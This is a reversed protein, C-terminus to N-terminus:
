RASRRPWARIAIHFFGEAIQEPLREDGRAGPESGACRPARTAGEPELPFPFRDPLLRGLALNVDTLTLEGAAPRRLLAPRSRRGREAPGVSLSHGDYRCLSGGGAAVTHIGMMPARLRVGAVEAEYVRELGGDYRSVDTSTGGMDFGIARGVGAGRAVAGVAVVGGAPGSLIANPGRFRDADTLGGSSQM